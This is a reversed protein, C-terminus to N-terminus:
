TKKNKATTSIDKVGALVTMTAAKSEEKKPKGKETPCTSTKALLLTCSSSSIGVVAFDLM